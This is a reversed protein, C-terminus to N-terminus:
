VNNVTSTNPVETVIPGINGLGADWPFFVSAKKKKKIEFFKKRMLMWNIEFSQHLEISIKSILANM